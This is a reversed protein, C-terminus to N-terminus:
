TIHVNPVSDLGNTLVLFSLHQGMEGAGAAFMKSFTNMLSKMLFINDEPNQLLFFVVTVAFWEEYM